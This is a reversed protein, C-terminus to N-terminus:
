WAVAPPSVRPPYSVGYYRHGRRVGKGQQGADRRNSPLRYLPRRPWHYRLVENLDKHATETPSNTRVGFNEYESIFCQAWQHRLPIYTNALYSLALTQDALDAQLKRWAADFDVESDAYLVYAWLQCFGTPTHEFETAELQQATFSKNARSIENLAATQPNHLLAAAAAKQEKRVLASAEVSEKDKNVDFEDQVEVAGDGLWKRKVNLDVNANIHFLCLQLQVTPLVELLASRLADEFDTIAVSPAQAGVEQRVANFSRILFDYSERRESSVVAFACNFLSGTDTTGTVQFLPM